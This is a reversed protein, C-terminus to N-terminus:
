TGPQTLTYQPLTACGCVKFTNVLQVLPQPWAHLASGSPSDAPGDSDGRTEAAMSCSSPEVALHAEVHMVHWVTFPPPPEVQDGGVYM